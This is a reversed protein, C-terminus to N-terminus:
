NDVGVNMVHFLDSVTVAAEPWLSHRTRKSHGIRQVCEYCFCFRATYISKYWKTKTKQCRCFKDRVLEKLSM